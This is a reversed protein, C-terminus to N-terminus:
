PCPKALEKGANSEPSKLKSPSVWGQRRAESLSCSERVLTQRVSRSGFIRRTFTFAFYKSQSKDVPLVGNTWPKEVQGSLEKLKRKAFKLWTLISVSLNRSGGKDKWTRRVVETLTRSVGSCKPLGVICDKPHRRRGPSWTIALSLILSTCKIMADKIVRM